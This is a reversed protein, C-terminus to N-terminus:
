LTTHKCVEGMQQYGNPIVSINVILADSNAVEGYSLPILQYTGAKVPNKHTLADSNAFQSANNPYPPEPGKDLAQNRQRQKYRNGDTYGPHAARYDKWYDPNKKRWRKSGQNQNERYDPDHKHKERRWTSKRVNQCESRSCFQQQPNRVPIFLRRCHKCDRKREM